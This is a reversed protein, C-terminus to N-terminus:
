VESFDTDMAVTFTYDPYLSKADALASDFVANRDKANFSVVMDFRIEKKAENLYFGHIQKIHTHSTVKEAIKRHAEMVNKDKTNHSYISIGTLLVNHEKMVADAVNREIEDLENITLTDLVEIHLSGHCINPGYDHLILDYAGMVGVVSRATAKIAASFKLDAREGLISSLTGMLLEAGSKVIVASIVAGLYAELSIGFILFVGAALLTSASIVSDLLAEKGSSILSDSRVKKGTLLVYRGLFVKVAVGAGVIILSATSYEPDEPAFVAKVAQIFSTFGAYLIIASIIMATIYEVRGYGFPHKKNPKRLALKAGIITIISSAADSINNVADLTIAISSTIVGIIIKIVSLLANATIGVISTRVIIKNRKQIQSDM